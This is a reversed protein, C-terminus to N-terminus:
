ILENLCVSNIYYRASTVSEGSLSFYYYYTTDDTFRFNGEPWSRITYGITFIHSEGPEFDYWGRYHDLEDGTLDPLYDFYTMMDTSNRLPYGEYVPEVNEVDLYAGIDTYFDEDTLNTVEVTVFIYRTDPHEEITYDAEHEAIFADYDFDSNLSEEYDLELWEVFEPCDERLEYFNIESSIYNPDPYEGELFYESPFQTQELINTDDYIECSIVRYELTGWRNQIVNDTSGEESGPIQVVEGSPSTTPANNESDQEQEVQEIRREEPTQKQSDIRAVAVICVVIFLIALGVYVYNKRMLM